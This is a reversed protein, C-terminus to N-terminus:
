KWCPTEHGQPSLLKSQDLENVLATFVDADGGPRYFNVHFDGQDEAPRPILTSGRMEETYIRAALGSCLPKRLDSWTMSAWDINYYTNVELIYAATSALTVNFM